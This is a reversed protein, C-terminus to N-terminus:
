DASPPLSRADAIADWGWKLLPLADHAFACFDDALASSAISTEAVPRLCIMSKLRMAAAIERDEIAEFGRPARKLSDGASLALGARKLKATM